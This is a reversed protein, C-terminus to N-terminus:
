GLCLSGVLQKYGPARNPIPSLQQKEEEEPIRSESSMQHTLLQSNQHQPLLCLEILGTKEVGEELMHWRSPFTLTESLHKPLCPAPSHTPPPPPQPHLPHLGQLFCPLFKVPTLFPILTQLLFLLFINM